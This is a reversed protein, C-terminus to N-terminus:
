LVGRSGTEVLNGIVIRIREAGAVGSDALSLAALYFSDEDLHTSLPAPTSAGTGAGALQRIEELVVKLLAQSDKEVRKRLDTEYNNLVQKWHKHELKSNNSSFRTLIQGEYFVTKKTGSQETYEGNKKMVVPLHDTPPQVYILVLAREDLTHPASRIQATGSVYGDFM